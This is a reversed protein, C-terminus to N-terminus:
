LGNDEKQGYDRMHGDSLGVKVKETGTGLFSIKCDSALHEKSIATKSIIRGSELEIAVLTNSNNSYAIIVDGDPSLSIKQLLRKGYKSWETSFPIKFITKKGRQNIFFIEDSDASICLFGNERAVFDVILLMENKGSELDRYFCPTGVGDQRIMISKGAATINTAGKPLNDSNFYERNGGSDVAFLEQASESYVIIRGDDLINFKTSESIEGEYHFEAWDKALFDFFLIKYRKTQTPIELYWTKLYIGDSNPSFWFDCLCAPTDDFPLDLTEEQETKEDLVTISNSFSIRSTDARFGFSIFKQRDPAYACYGRKLFNEDGLIRSYDILDERIKELKGWKVDPITELIEVIKQRIVLAQESDASDLFGEMAIDFSHLKILTRTLENCDM